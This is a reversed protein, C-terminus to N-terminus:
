RSPSRPGHSRDVRLAMGALLKRSSLHHCARTLRAAAPAAEANSQSPAYALLHIHLKFDERVSSEIPASSYTIRKHRQEQCPNKDARDVSVDYVQLDIAARGENFCQFQRVRFASDM